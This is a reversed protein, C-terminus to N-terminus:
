WEVSVIDRENFVHNRHIAKRIEETDRASYDGQFIYLGNPHETDGYVKPRSQKYQIGLYTGYKSNTGLNFRQVHKELTETVKGEFDYVTIKHKTATKMKEGNGM